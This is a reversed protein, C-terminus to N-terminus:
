KFNYKAKLAAMEGTRVKEELWFNVFNLFEQDGKSMLMGFSSKTFTDKILPAALEKMDKTYRAAEPTETIMVDADGVAIKAPIEANQPHMMLTANQCNALAFKENSGGPNYMVRVGKKNVDALSKFKAADKARVMITKGQEMYSASLEMQMARKVNRSIGSIALDFKNEMTDKTLTPWSTKVFQCKVGMDKALLEALEIDFGEYKGTAADLFSMPKYDGTTGVLIAGREQIDELKGAEVSPMMVSMMAGALVAGAFMKKLSVM